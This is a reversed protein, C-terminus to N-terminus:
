RACRPSAPRAIGAHEPVPPAEDHDLYVRDREGARLVGVDFAAIEIRPSYWCGTQVPQVAPVPPVAPHPYGSWKCSSIWTSPVLSSWDV